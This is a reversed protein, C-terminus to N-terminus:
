GAPVIVPTRPADSSTGYPSASFGGQEAQTDRLRAWTSGQSSISGTASLRPPVGLPSRAASQACRVGSPHPPQSRTQRREAENSEEKKCEHSSACITLIGADVAPMRQRLDARLASFSRDRSSSEPAFRMALVLDSTVEGRTRPSTSRAFRTLTLPGRRSESRRLESGQPLAGEGWGRGALPSLSHSAPRSSTHMPLVPFGHAVFFVELAPRKFLTERQDIRRMNRRPPQITIRQPKPAVTRHPVALVM